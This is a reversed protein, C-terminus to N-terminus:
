SAAHQARRLRAEAAESAREVDRLRRLSEAGSDYAKARYLRYRERARRADAHLRM